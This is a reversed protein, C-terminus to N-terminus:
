ISFDFRTKVTEKLNEIYPEKSTGDELGELMVKYRVIQFSLSECSEIVNKKVSDLVLDISSTFKFINRKGNVYEVFGFVQLLNIVEAAQSHSLTTKAVVETQTHIVDFPNIVNIDTILGILTKAHNEAAEYNGKEKVFEEVTKAKSQKAKKATEADELTKFDEETMFVVLMGIKSAQKKVADIMKENKCYLFIMREEPPLEPKLKKAKAPKSDSIVEIPLNNSGLIHESVVSKDGGAVGLDVGIILPETKISHNLSSIEKSSEERVKKLLTNEQSIQNEREDQKEEIM